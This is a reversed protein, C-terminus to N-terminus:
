QPTGQGPVVLVSQTANRLVREAVSGLLLRPLGRRAHTGVVILASEHEDALALIEAAASPGSRLVPTVRWRPDPCHAAVFRALEVASAPDLRAVVAPEHATDLVIPEVEVVLMAAISTGEGPTA